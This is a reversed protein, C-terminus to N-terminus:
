ADVVGKPSEDKELTKKFLQRAAQHYIVVGEPQMFGPSAVSGSTRLDEIVKEVAETSFLGEYLVPVVYVCSPRSAPDSWRATNFLSFRKENLDYRRQIGSGWWEGFHHGPGLKLLEDKHELCWRGFGSNDDKPPNLWRSRSAFLMTVFDDAIFISANTGDIKETITCLRSLRPIKPFVEFPPQDPM